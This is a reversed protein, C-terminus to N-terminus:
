YYGSIHGCFTCMIKAGEEITYLSRCSTPETVIQMDNLIMFKVNLFERLPQKVLIHLHDKPAYDFFSSLEMSFPELQECNALNLSLLQTDLVDNVPLCVKFLTLSNAPM